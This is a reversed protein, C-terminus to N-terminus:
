TSGGQVNPIAPDNPQYHLHEAHLVPVELTIGNEYFLPETVEATRHGDRAPITNRPIPSVVAQFCNDKLDPLSAPMPGANTAAAKAAKPTSCRTAARLMM